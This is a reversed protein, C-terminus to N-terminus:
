IAFADIVLNQERGGDRTYLLSWRLAAITTRGATPNTAMDPETGRRAAILNAIPRPRPGIDKGPPVTVLHRRTASTVIYPPQPQLLLAPSTSLPHRGRRAPASRPMPLPGMLGNRYARHNRVRLDRQLEAKPKWRGRKRHPRLPKSNNTLTAAANAPPQSNPPMPSPNASTPPPTRSRTRASFRTWRM